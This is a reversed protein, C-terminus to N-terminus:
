RWNLILLSENELNVDVKIKGDKSIYILMDNKM